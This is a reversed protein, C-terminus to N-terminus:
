LTQLSPALFSRTLAWCHTGAAPCAPNARDSAERSSLPRATIRSPPSYARTAWLIEHPCKM